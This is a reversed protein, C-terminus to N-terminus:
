FVTQTNRLFNFIYRDYSEVMGSRSVKGLSINIYTWLCINMPMKNTIILSFCGWLEEVPSHIVFQRVDM